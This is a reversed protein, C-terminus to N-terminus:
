IYGSNSIILNIGILITIIGIIVKYNANKNQLLYYSALFTFIINFSHTISRTKGPGNLELSKYYLLAAFLYMVSIFICIYWYNLSDKSFIFQRQKQSLYFILIFLLVIFDCCYRICQFVTSDITKIYQNIILVIITSIISYSILLYFPDINNFNM